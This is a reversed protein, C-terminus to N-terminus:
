NSKAESKAEQPDEGHRVKQVAEKADSTTMKSAGEIGAEHAQERADHKRQDEAM